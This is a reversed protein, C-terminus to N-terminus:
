AGTALRQQSRANFRQELLAITEGVQELTRVSRDDMDHLRMEIRQRLLDFEAAFDPMSTPSRAEILAALAELRAAPDNAEIAALRTEQQEVFRAIDARLQEFAEGQRAEIEAIRGEASNIKAAVREAGRAATELKVLRGEAHGAASASDGSIRSLSRTLDKLQTSQADLRHRLDEVQQTVSIDDEPEGIREALCAVDDRLSALARNVGSRDLARELHLQQEAQTQELEALREAVPPDTETALLAMGLTRDMLHLRAAIGCQQGHLSALERELQEVAQSAASTVAEFKQTFKEDVSTVDSAIKELAALTCAEVRAVNHGLARSEAAHASEIQDFRRGIHQDHTDLDTVVRQGLAELANRHEAGSRLLSAELASDAHRLGAVADELAARNSAAVAALQAESAAFAERMRERTEVASQEIGDETRAAFEQFDRKLAQLAADARAAAAMSEERIAQLGGEINAATDLALASFDEALAHKLAHHAEALLAGTQHASKAIDEVFDMRQHLRSLRGTVDAAINEASQWRALGDREVDALRRQLLTLEASAARAHERSADRTGLAVGEADCVRAELSLASAELSRLATELGATSAGLRRELAEVRHRYAFNESGQRAPGRVTAIEEASMLQHLFDSLDLGSLEAAEMIRLRTSPPLEDLEHFLDSM